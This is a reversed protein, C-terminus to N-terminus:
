RDVKTVGGVQTPPSMRRIGGLLEESYWGIIEQFYWEIIGVFVYWWIIGGIVMWYNGPFVIWYNRWIDVLQEELYWGIIGGFVM